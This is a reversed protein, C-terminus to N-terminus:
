FNSFDGKAQISVINAFFSDDKYDTSKLEYKKILKDTKLDFVLIAPHSIQKPEGLIDALGTDMVWLRDCPDVKVRFTSIIQSPEPKTEETPLQNADWDPYPILAPTTSNTDLPIYNLSAAVGAKWRCSYIFLDNTCKYKYFNNENFANILLLSNAKM